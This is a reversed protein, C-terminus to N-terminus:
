PAKPALGLLGRLGNGVSSFRSALKEAAAQTEEDPYLLREHWVLMSFVYENSGVDKCTLQLPQANLAAALDVNVLGAVSLSYGAFDILHQWIHFTYVHDTGFARGGLNKPQDCWKRRKDSPLPRGHKDAIAPCFLRMDEEAAWVDRPHEGERSVNVMQCAALVPNMFYPLETSADIHASSSFVKSAARLVIEGVWPPANGPKVFEQGMCVASADVERKFKGQVAIQFFRKKGEFISRRTTNLGKLHIEIRGSFIPTEVAMSGGNIVLQRAPDSAGDFLQSGAMPNPTIYVPYHPSAKIDAHSPVAPRHWPHVDRPGLDAANVAEVFVVPAASAAKGLAAAAAGAPSTEARPAEAATM